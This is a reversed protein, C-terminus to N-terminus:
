IIENNKKNLIQMAILGGILGFIINIFFNNAIISFSYIFSFGYHTIDYVVGSLLKAVEKRIAEDVPFESLMKNIEPISVILDNTKTILTIIIEFLSSFIAANLGTLFGFTAAKKVTIKSYDKNAKQQLLLSFYAAFPIILCCAFSKAVPVIQFVGAAFGTVFTSIYKKM